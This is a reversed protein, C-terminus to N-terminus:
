TKVNKMSNVLNSSSWPVSYSYFIFRICICVTWQRNKESKLLLLQVFSTQLKFFFFSLVVRIKLRDPTVWWNVGDAEVWAFRYENVRLMLQLCGAVCQVYQSSQLPCACVNVWRPANWGHLRLVLCVNFHWPCNTAGQFMSYDVLLPSFVSTPWDLVQVVTVSWIRPMACARRGSPLLMSSWVGLLVLCLPLLTGDCRLLTM